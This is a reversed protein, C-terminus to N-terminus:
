NALKQFDNFFAPYSKNVAEANEIIITGNAKLGLIACAMAIRHDNHSSVKGGTPISGRVFMANNETQVNIGVKQFEQQIAIARNSEKNILRNIGHMISQGECCAALVAVPPFLDPCHTLDCEFANLYQKQVRVFSKDVQVKAGCKQLIEIIKRDAQASNANLGRIIVDGCVAGGVFHFASGSWDGETNYICPIPKQGGQIYFTQFDKHEIHVGFHKMIDLTMAIYPISQLNNVLIKSNGELIPLAILLGTLLQSTESGDIKYIGSQLAGDMDIPLFGNNSAVNKGGQKLADIVMQMPRKMLSSYGTITVKHKNIAAIPAFMRASLGSENCSIQMPKGFFTNGVICVFNKEIKVNSGLAQAISLAADVDKSPTYGNIISEGNCLISLAIARQLYSKSSPSALTGQYTNSQIVKVNM